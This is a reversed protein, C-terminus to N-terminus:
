PDLLTHTMPEVTTDGGPIQNTRLVWLGSGNRLFLTSLKEHARRPLVVRHSSLLDM